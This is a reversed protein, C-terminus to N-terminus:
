EGLTQVFDFSIRGFGSSYAPWQISDPVILAKIVPRYLMVLHGAAISAPLPPNIDMSGTVGSANATRGTLLRHMSWHTPSSGYQVSFLDGASLEYAPPLDRLTATIRSAGITNIKPTAGALKMGGPDSLPGCAPRAHALFSAGTRDLMEIRAQMAMLDRTSRAVASVSGRWLSTGLIASHMEGGRTRSQVRVGPLYFQSGVEVRLGAFFDALPIPDAM